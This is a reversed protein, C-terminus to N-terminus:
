RGFEKEFEHKTLEDEFYFTDEYVDTYKSFNWQHQELNKKCWQKADFERDSHIEVPNSNLNMWRLKYDFREQPTMIQTKRIYRLM